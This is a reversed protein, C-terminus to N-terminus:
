GVSVGRRRLQYFDQLQKPPDNGAERYLYLHAAHQRIAQRVDAPVDTAAGGYGASYLVTLPARYAAHIRLRDSNGVRELEYGTEGAELEYDDADTVSAVSIVPGRPLEVESLGDDYFVATIGQTILSAEMSQQAHAIAADVLELVYDREDSAPDMRLHPRMSTFDVVRVAPPTTVTWKSRM